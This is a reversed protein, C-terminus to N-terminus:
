GVAAAAQHRNGGHTDEKHVPSDAVRRPIDDHGDRQDARPDADAPRLLDDSFVVGYLRLAKEPLGEDVRCEVELRAIEALLDRQGHSNKSAIHQKLLLLVRECDVLM